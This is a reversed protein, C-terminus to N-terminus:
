LVRWVEVLQAVVKVSALWARPECRRLFVLTDRRQGCSYWPARPRELGGYRPHYSVRGM